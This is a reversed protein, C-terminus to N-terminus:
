GVRVPVARIQRYSATLSGSGCKYQLKVIAGAATVMRRFSRERWGAEGGGDGWFQIADADLTAAAGFKPAIYYYTAGTPSLFGGFTFNYDGALPLVVQPGPDTPFDAYNTSSGGQGPTAVADLGSGGIFEWKYADAWNATWRLHWLPWPSDPCRFYVEQGEVPNSPLSTVFLPSAPDPADTDIWIAGIGPSAPEGAQEYVETGAVDAWASGNWYRAVPM